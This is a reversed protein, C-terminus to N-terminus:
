NDINVLPGIFDGTKRCPVRTCHGHQKGAEAARDPREPDSPKLKQQQKGEPDGSTVPFHM